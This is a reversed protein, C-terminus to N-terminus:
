CDFVNGFAEAGDLLARQIEEIMKKPETNKLMATVVPRKSDFLFNM